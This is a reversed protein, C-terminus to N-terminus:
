DATYADCDDYEDDYVGYDNDWCQGVICGPSYTPTGERSGDEQVCCCDQDNPDCDCGGGCACCYNDAVFNRDDFDGCRWERGWYWDCDNGRTDTFHTVYEDFDYCTNCHEEYYDQGYYDHTWCAPIDCIDDGTSPCCCNDVDWPDCDCGGCCTCCADASIFDADGTEDIYDNMHCRWPFKDYDSCTGYVTTSGHNCGYDNYNM